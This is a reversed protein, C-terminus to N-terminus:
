FLKLKISILKAFILKLKALYTVSFFKSFFLGPRILLTWRFDFNLLVLQVSCQWFRQMFWWIFVQRIQFCSCHRHPDECYVNPTPLLLFNKSTIVKGLFGVWNDWSFFLGLCHLHARCRCVAKFYKKMRFIWLNGM